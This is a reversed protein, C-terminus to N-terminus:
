AQQLSEKAALNQFSATSLRAVTFGSLVAFLSLASNADIAYNTGPIVGALLFMMAAHGANLSDLIILASFLTLILSISKKMQTAKM